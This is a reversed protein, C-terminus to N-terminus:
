VWCNQCIPYTKKRKKDFWLDIRGVMAGGFGVQNIAVAKGKKNAVTQIGDLFTHTHGGLILDIHESDRAIKRDSVKDSAYEYGLHSLVIVWDCNKERKLKKAWNNAETLPNLIQLGRFNAYPVLGDLEIGLGLIGIRVGEKEIIEYKRSLGALQTDSFDYNTCVFPFKAHSRQKKLGDLGLDFDHNGLTAADYRMQSMLKFELRGEYANFYPTGQWIDGSDLLILHKEESRIRNIFASRAAVGGKGALKGADRPFPDIRSHTDNTHLITIKVTEDSGLIPWYTPALAIGASIHSFQRLFQRRNIM